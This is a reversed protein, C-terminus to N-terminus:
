VKINEILEKTEFCKLCVCVHISRYLSGRYGDGVEAIILVIKAKGFMSKAFMRTCLDKDVNWM